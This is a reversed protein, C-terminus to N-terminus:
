SFLAITEEGERHVHQRDNVEISSKLADIRCELFQQAERFFVQHSHREEVQDMRFIPLCGHRRIVPESGTFRDAKHLIAQAEANRQIVHIARERDHEDLKHSDLLRAWGLISTLPTRLEHSMTALFEDKIRNADELSDARLRLVDQMRRVDTTDRGVGFAVGDEPLSRGSIEFINRTKSLVISPTDDTGEIILDQM